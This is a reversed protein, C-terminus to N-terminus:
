LGCKTEVEIQFRLSSGRTSLGDSWTIGVAVIEVSNKNNCKFSVKTSLEGYDVASIFLDRTVENGCDTYQGHQRSNFIQIGVPGLPTERKSQIRFPPTTVEVNSEDVGFKFEVPRPDIWDLTEMQVSLVRIIYTCTRMLIHNLRARAEVDQEKTSAKVLKEVVSASALARRTLEVMSKERTELGDHRLNDILEQDSLKSFDVKNPM